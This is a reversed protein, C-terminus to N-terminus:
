VDFTRGFKNDLRIDTAVVAMAEVIGIQEYPGLSFSEMGDIGVLIHTGDTKRLLQVGLIPTRKIIRERTM